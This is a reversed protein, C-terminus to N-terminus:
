YGDRDADGPMSKEVRHWADKVAGKAKDWSLRTKSEARIEWDERLNPEIEEFQRGGYRSYSEWGYQYAPRYTDYSTGPAVYPRTAYNSRWYQDEMTPNVIEAAGKGALGGAVGGVAAGAVTGVPGALSGIVAGAAAGGTAGVATGVPHAGAEGSIPDRNADIDAKKKTDTM